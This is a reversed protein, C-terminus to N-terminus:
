CFDDPDQGKLPDIKMGKEFYKQIFAFHFVGDIISAEFFIDFQELGAWSGGAIGEVVRYGVEM